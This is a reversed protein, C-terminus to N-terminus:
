IFACEVEQLWGLCPFSSGIISDNKSLLLLLSSDLTGNDMICSLHHLVQFSTLIDKSHNYYLNSIEELDQVTALYTM